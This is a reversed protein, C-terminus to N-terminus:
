LQVHCIVHDEQIKLRSDQNNSVEGNVFEATSVMADPLHSTTRVLCRELCGALCGAHIMALWTLINWLNDREGTVPVGTGHSV